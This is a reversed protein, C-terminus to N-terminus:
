TRRLAPLWESMGILLGLASVLYAGAFFRDAAVPYLLFHLAVYTGSVAVLARWGSWRGAGEVRTRLAMRIGYSELLLFLVFAADGPLYYLGDLLTRLYGGATLTPMQSLSHAMPEVHTVYMAGPWGVILDIIVLVVLCAAASVAVPIRRSPNAVAVAVLLPVAFLLLDPRIGVTLPMTACLATHRGQLFLAAAGVIALLALGDPTSSRAIAPVGFVVALLPPAYLLPPAIRGRAIVFLLGVAIAACVASIAYSAFVRSAGVHALLEILAVYIPKIGYYAMQDAFATTDHAVAYRYDNSTDLALRRFTEAPVARQVDHYTRAQAATAEATERAYSAGVYGILDWNYFPRSLGAALTGVVVLLWLLPARLHKM